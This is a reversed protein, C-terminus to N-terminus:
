SRSPDAIAKAVSIAIMLPGGWKLCVMYRAHKDDHAPDEGPKKGVWRFGMCMALVGAFLSIGADVAIGIVKDM